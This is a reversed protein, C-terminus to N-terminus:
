PAAINTLRLKPGDIHTLRSNDNIWLRPRHIQDEAFSRLIFEGLQRIEGNEVRTRHRCFHEVGSQRICLYDNAL